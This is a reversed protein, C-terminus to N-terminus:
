IKKIVEEIESLTEREQEEYQKRLIEEEEPCYIDLNLDYFCTLVIQNHLIICILPISAAKLLRFLM